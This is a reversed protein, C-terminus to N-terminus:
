MIYNTNREANNGKKSLERKHSIVGYLGNVTLPAESSYTAEM